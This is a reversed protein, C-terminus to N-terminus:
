TTLSPRKAMESARLPLHGQARDWTLTFTYKAGRQRTLSALTVMERSGEGILGTSLAASLSLSLSLSLPVAPHFAGLLNGVCRDELGWVQIVPGKSPGM